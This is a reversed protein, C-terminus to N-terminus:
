RTTQTLPSTSIDLSSSTAEHLFYVFPAHSYNAM